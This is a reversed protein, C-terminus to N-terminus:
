DKKIVIIPGDTDTGQTVYNDIISDGVKAFQSYDVENNFTKEPKKIQSEFDDSTCSNFSIALFLVSFIIIVKKM